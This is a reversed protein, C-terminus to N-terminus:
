TPYRVGEKVKSSYLKGSRQKGSYNPSTKRLICTKMCSALFRVGSSNLHLYDNYRANQAGLCKDDDLFDDYGTVYGIRLSSKVLDEFILKNYALIKNNLGMLRTPLVPSILIKARKNIHRIDEVKSRLQCYIDKIDKHSNIHKSKINNVGCHLIINNYAACDFPNIEDITYSVVHEGPMSKGLTGKTDGFKIKTTNSDGILITSNHNRWSVSRFTLSYRVDTAEEDPDVRHEYFEQSLRTMSYMSGSDVRLSSNEGTICNTFDVTRSQGISITFINSNRAICKENDSHQNISSNPGEYRNILCQNLQPKGEGCFEDNLHGLWQEILPPAPVTDNRSGNYNYTEGFKIVGHGKEEVYKCQDCFTKLKSIEDTGLFKPLSHDVPEIKTIDDKVSQENFINSLPKGNDTDPFKDNTVCEGFFDKGTFEDESARVGDSKLGDVATQLSTLQEQISTINVHSTNSLNDVKTIISDIKEEQPLPKPRNDISYSSLCLPRVANLLSLYLDCVVPKNLTKRVTKEVHSNLLFDISTSNLVDESATHEDLTQVHRIYECKLKLLDGHVRKSVFIDSIGSVNVDGDSETSKFSDNQDSVNGNINTATLPSHSNTTSM